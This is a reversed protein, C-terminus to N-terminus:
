NEALRGELTQENKACGLLKGEYLTSRCCQKSSKALKLRECPCPQGALGRQQCPPKQASHWKMAEIWRAFETYSRNQFRFPPRKCSLQWYFCFASAQQLTCRLCLGHSHISLLLRFSSRSLQVKTLGQLLQALQLVV